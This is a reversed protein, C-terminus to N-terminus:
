AKASRLGELFQIRTNAEQLQQELKEIEIRAIQHLDHFSGGLKDKATRSSCRFLDRQFKANDV